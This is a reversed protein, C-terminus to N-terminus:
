SRLPRPNGAVDARDGGSRGLRPHVGCVLRASDARLADRRLRAPFAFLRGADEM